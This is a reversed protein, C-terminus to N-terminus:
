LLGRIKKLESFGLERNVPKPLAPRYFRYAAGRHVSSGVALKRFQAPSPPWELEQRCKDLARAVQEANLGALALSWEDMALKQLENTAFQDSWRTLYIRQLKAFIGAIWKAELRRPLSRM